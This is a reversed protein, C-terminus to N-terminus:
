VTPKVVTLALLGGEGKARRLENKPRHRLHKAGALVLFSRRAFLSSRFAFLFM